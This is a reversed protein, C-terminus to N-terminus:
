KNYKKIFDYINQYHIISNNNDRMYYKYITYISSKWHMNTLHYEATKDICLDDIKKMKQLTLNNTYGLAIIFSCKYIDYNIKDGYNIFKKDDTIKSIQSVTIIENETIKSKEICYKYDKNCYFYNNLKKYIEAYNIDPTNNTNDDTNVDNTNVNKNTNNDTNVNKNTNSKNNLKNNYDRWDSFLKFLNM